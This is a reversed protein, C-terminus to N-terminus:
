LLPFLVVAPSFQKSRRWKRNAVVAAAMPDAVAASLVVAALGAAPSAVAALLVVAAPVAVPEPGVLPGLAALPGPEVGVAVGWVGGGVRGTVGQVRGADLCGADAHERYGVAFVFDPGLAQALAGQLDQQQV